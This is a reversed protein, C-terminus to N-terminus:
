LPWDSREAGVSCLKNCAGIAFVFWSNETLHIFTWQLHQGGYLESNWYYHSKSSLCDYLIDWANSGSYNVKFVNVDVYKDTLNSCSRAIRHSHCKVSIIIVPKKEKVRVVVRCCKFVGIFSRIHVNLWSRLEVYASTVSSQICEHKFPYLSIDILCSASLLNNCIDRRKRSQMYKTRAWSEETAGMVCKQSRWQQRETSSIHYRHRSM